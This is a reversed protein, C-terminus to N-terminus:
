IKLASCLNTSNLQEKMEQSTNLIEKFYTFYNSNSSNETTASDPNNPKKKINCVSSLSRYASSQTVLADALKKANIDPEFFYHYNSVIEM